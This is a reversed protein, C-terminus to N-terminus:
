HVFTGAVLFVQGGSTNFALGNQGWRVLRGINGNVNNITTSDVLALTTLNFSQLTVTPSGFPQTLFYARNAAADPVMLTSNFPPILFSGTVTGTAPNVIQGNDAYVLNKSPEFHIRKASSTFVNPFDHSLTVGSANVALTFFDFGSTSNTAALLTSADAGWQVTDFFNIGPAQTPRETSDDFIALGGRAAPFGGGGSTVAATHPAGPAVEIDLPFFPGNFPDSGVSYSVDSTMAPLAVRQVNASSKNGAYIFSSDGALALVQPESGVFQSSIVKGSLDLATVTNGHAASTSPVSVFFVQNVPDFLLDNAPQALTEIAFSAGAPTTGATTGVFFTSGASSGGSAGNDVTIISTGANAIDSANIAATLQTPSVFTTTRASGNLKVVSTAIFNTGNVTISFAPGGASASGPSLSAIVPTQATPAPTPAPTPIPTATPFPPAVPLTGGMLVIQGGTTNFALGNNGWRLIREVTGSVGPVTLSSVPTFHTLDFSKIVTAGTQQSVFYATNTTADPVMPGSIQFLGSPAGTSANAVQGGESYVRQTASNFHIKGFGLVGPFTNTQVPGGAAVSFTLLNSSFGAGFLSGADPGWALSTVATGTAARPTVDDFISFSQGFPGSNPTGPVVATTHPAGPAVQLDVATAPGGFSIPPVSYRIDPSAFSALTFRQVSSTGDIGTYLFQSDDSLALLNPNSGAFQSGIFSATSLDLVAVSNGNPDANTTTAYILQRAPDYAIDRSAKNLVAISVGNVNATGTFFTFAASAGGSAVPNVVTVSSAGISAIDGSTIAAELQTGSIFITTRSSGNFQVQAAPDFNSGTITLTFPAGGAITSAPNLATIAPANAAPTPAPAPMTPSPPIATSTSDLFNGGVLVLQGGTTNFALGNQGWRILRKPTGNIGTINISGTATLRNL